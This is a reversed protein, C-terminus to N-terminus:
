VTKGLIHVRGRGTESTSRGGEVRKVPRGGESGRGLVPYFLLFHCFHCNQDNQRNIFFTVSIVTKVNQSIVGSSLRSYPLTQPVPILFHCRPPAASSCETVDCRFSSSFLSPVSSCVGRGQARITFMRLILRLVQSSDPFMRHHVSFHVGSSRNYM